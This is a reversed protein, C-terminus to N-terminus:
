NYIYATYEKISTLGKAEIEEKTLPLYTSRDMAKIYEVTITIGYCILYVACLTLAVIACIVFGSFMFDFYGVNIDGLQVSTDFPLSYKHWIYGVLPCLGFTSIIVSAILAFTRFYTNGKLESLFSRKRTLSTNM